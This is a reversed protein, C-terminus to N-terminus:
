VSWEGPLDLFVKLAGDRRGGFIQFAEQVDELPFRHTILPTLDIRREAVWRMALPFDREFDPDVSTHITLEKFFIKRWNIQEITELPVGFFLIRGHECCLSECLNLAQEGHGVCEIVLDAMKGDTLERVAEVPDDTGAHIVDTAGMDRNRVLRSKLKDIAIIQRAGLNRLVACFIHGVPGQGVIAVDLDLLNPLKRLAYLVTALPQSLVADEDACRPDLPIARKEPLVYREFFGQQRIPVALVKEGPKFKEGNTAIVEGVMEHLSYGPELPYSNGGEQFFPMDSGCLCALVPQFLIQGTEGDDLRPEPHDIVEIKGREVIHGAYLAIEKVNGCRPCQIQNVALYEYHETAM